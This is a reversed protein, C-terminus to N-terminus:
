FKLVNVKSIARKKRSCISKIKSTLFNKDGLGRGFNLMTRNIQESIM